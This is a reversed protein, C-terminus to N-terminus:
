FDVNLKARLVHERRYQTYKDSGQSRIVSKVVDSPKVTAGSKQIDSKAKNILQLYEGGLEDFSSGSQSSGIENTIGSKEMAVSAKKLTDIYREAANPDVAELDLIQDATQETDIPAYKCDTKLIMVVDRRRDNRQITEVTKQLADYAAKSVMEEGDGEFTTPKPETAPKPDDGSKKTPEAKPQPLSAFLAVSNRIEGEEQETVKLADDSKILEVIKEVNREGTGVVEQLKKLLEPRVKGEEHNNSPFGERKLLLFKRRNAGRRVFSVAQIDMDKLEPM